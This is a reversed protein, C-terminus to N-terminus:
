GAAEVEHLAGAETVEALIEAEHGAVATVAAELIQLGTTMEAETVTLPPSLRVSTRGCELVLLGREFAAWQVEEAHQGTDFEVGIMLGIGRVDTVLGPHRDRLSCLATLAQEGRAAANDVLGHELLEITALAAACAVPNGGYTSGHAGPGWTELLDARAILAALPMGSAIGKASLVIDPKVDWHEVAWMKGTRGAGSQIEDAILLIGHEDCIRRLGQLFGDEPV